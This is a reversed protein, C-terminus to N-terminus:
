AGAVGAVFHAALHIVVAAEGVFCAVDFHSPRIPSALRLTQLQVGEDCTLVRRQCGSQALRRTGMRHPPHATSGRENRRRGVVQAITAAAEFGAAGAGLNPQKVVAAPADGGSTTAQGGAQLLLLDVAAM